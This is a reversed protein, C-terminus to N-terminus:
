SILLTLNVHHSVGTIGAIQSASAPPDGLTLLEFGAQGLHPFGMEVLFYLVLWAHYHMGTIGASESALPPLDGSILFELGAQGDHLFEDRNFTYFNALRPPLRRYDCSSLLSFCSFRKFGPPPPQQLSLNCWRM